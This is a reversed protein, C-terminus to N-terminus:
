SLSRAPAVNQEVPARVGPAATCLFQECSDDICCSPKLELQFKTQHGAKLNLLAFAGATINSRIRKGNFQTTKPVYETLNSLVVDFRSTVDQGNLRISGMAVNAYRIVPAGLFRPGLDGLNNIVIKSRFFDLGLAM